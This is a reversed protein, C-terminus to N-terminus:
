GSAYRISVSELEKDAVKAFEKYRNRITVESCDAANAIEHQTYQGNGGAINGALYLSAAAIANAQKGSAIGDELCVDVIDHALDADEDVAGIEEVINDVYKHPDALTFEFDLQSRMAKSTRLITKAEIHDATHPAIDEARRIDDSERTAFLLCACVAMKVGRGFLFDAEENQVVDQYLESARSRVDDGLDLQECLHDLHTLGDRLAERTSREM